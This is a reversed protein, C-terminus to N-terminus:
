RPKMSTWPASRATFSFRSITRVTLPSCGSETTQRRSSASHVSGSSSFSLECSPVGPMIPARRAPENEMTLASPEPASSARARIAKMGRM